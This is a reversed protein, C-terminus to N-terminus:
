SHVFTRNVGSVWGATEVVRRKEVSPLRVGAGGGVGGLGGGAGGAGGFDGGCGGSAAICMMM